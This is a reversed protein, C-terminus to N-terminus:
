AQEKCTLDCSATCVQGDRLAQISHIIININYTLV